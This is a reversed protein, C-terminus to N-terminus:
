AARRTTRRRERVFVPSGWFGITGPEAATLLVEAHDTTRCVSFTSPGATGAIPRRLRISPSRRSGRGKVLLYAFRSRQDGVTGVALDLWGRAPVEVDFRMTEPSRGVITERYM